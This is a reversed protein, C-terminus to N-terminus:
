VPSRVKPKRGLSFGLVSLVLGTIFLIASVEVVGVSTTSSVGAIVPQGNGVVPQVQSSGAFFIVIGVVVLVIGLYGIANGLSRYRKREDEAKM